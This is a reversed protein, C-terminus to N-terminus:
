FFSVEYGIRWFVDEWETAEEELIEGSYIWEKPSIYTLTNLQLENTM